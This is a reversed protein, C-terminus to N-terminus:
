DTPRPRWSIGMAECPDAAREKALLDRVVSQMAAKVAALDSAPDEFVRRAEEWRDFIAHQHYAPEAPKNQVNM